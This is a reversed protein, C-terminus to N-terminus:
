SSTTAQQPQLQQLRADLLRLPENILISLWCPTSTIERQGYEYGWGYKFSVQISCLKTLDLISEYTALPDSVLQAFLSSNFISHISQRRPLHHITFDNSGILRNYLISQVFVSCSWSRNRISVDGNCHEILEIGRGISERVFEVGKQRKINELLGLSFRNSFNRYPSTYGDVFIQSSSARFQDGVKSSYEYYNITCWSSLTHHNSFQPSYPDPSCMSLPPTPPTNENNIRPEIISPLVQSPVRDYHYPNICVHKQNRNNGSSFPYRCQSSPILEHYNQLDAFRWLRCYVVHPFEKRYVIQIRKDVSPPITICPSPLYPNLLVKALSDLVGESNKLKKILFDVARQSHENDEHGQKWNVIKSRLVHLNFSKRDHYDTM